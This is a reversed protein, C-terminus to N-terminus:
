KKLLIVKGWLEVWSKIKWLIRNLESEKINDKKIHKIIEKLYPSFENPNFETKELKNTMFIVIKIINERSSTFTKWENPIFKVWKYNEIKIDKLIKNFTDDFLNNNDNTIIDKEPLKWWCNSCYPM